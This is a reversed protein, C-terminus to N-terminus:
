GAGNGAGPDVAELGGSNSRSFRDPDFNKTKNEADNLYVIGGTKKIRARNNFLSGALIRLPPFEDPTEKDKGQLRPKGNKFFVKAGTFPYVIAGNFPPDMTVANIWAQVANLHPHNIFPGSATFTPEIINIIEGQENELLYTTDFCFIEQYRIKTQRETKM